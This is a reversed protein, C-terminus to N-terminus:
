EAYVMFIIKSSYKGEVPYNARTTRKLSITGNNDSEYYVDGQRILNTFLSGSPVSTTGNYLMYPIKYLLSGITARLEDYKVRIQVSALVNGRFSWRAIEVGTGVSEFAFEGSNIDDITNDLREIFIINTQEVVGYRHDRSSTNDAPYLFGLPLCLSILLIITRLVNKPKMTSWVVSTDM